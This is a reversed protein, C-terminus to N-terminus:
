QSINVIAKWNVIVWLLFKWRDERAERDFRYLSQAIEIASSFM